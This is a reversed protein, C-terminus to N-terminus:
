NILLILSPIVIAWTVGVASEKENKLSLAGRARGKKVIKDGHGM